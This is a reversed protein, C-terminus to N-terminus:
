LATPAHSSPVPGAGALTAALAVVPGARFVWTTTRSYVAGKQLLKALDYYPQLLPAGKRGAFIAKTKQILGILLPPLLTLLGLHLLTERM